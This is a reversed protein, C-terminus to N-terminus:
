SASHAPTLMINRGAIAAADMNEVRRGVCNLSEYIEFPSSHVVVGVNDKSVRFDGKVADAGNAFAAGVDAFSKAGQAAACCLLLLRRM